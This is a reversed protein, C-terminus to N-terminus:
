FIMKMGDLFSQKSIKKKPGVMMMRVASEPYSLIHLVGETFKALLIYAFHSDKSTYQM